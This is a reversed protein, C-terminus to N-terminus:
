VLICFKKTFMLYGTRSVHFPSQTRCCLVETIVASAMQLAIGPCVCVDTWLLRTWLVVLTLATKRHSKGSNRLDFLVTVSALHLEGGVGTYVRIDYTVFSTQLVETFTSGFLMTIFRLRQPWSCTGSPMPLLFSEMARSSCWALVTSWAEGPLRRLDKLIARVILLSVNPIPCLPPLSCKRCPTPTKM